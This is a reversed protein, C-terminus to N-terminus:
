GVHNLEDTGKSGEGGKVSIAVSNYITRTEVKSSQM